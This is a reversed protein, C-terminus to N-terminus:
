WHEKRRKMILYILLPVGIASTVIGVPIVVPSFITRALTDALTLLVMGLLCSIPILFRHDGGVLIRGLHPAALGIFGIPGLMSVIVATIFSALLLGMVRLREVNIGMSKADEDGLMLLNFDWAKRYSLIFIGLVILCSIKLKSWNAKSLSGFMWYALAALEESKGIYQLLSVGASFIYSVAVGFLVITEPTVKQSKSLFYIALTSLLTFCFANAGILYDYPVYFPLLDTVGKKLIIALAAGFSAASSIGLTYPSALPNRLITQMMLGALALGSGCVAAMFVRPVRLQWLIQHSLEMDERSRGIGSILARWSEAINYSAGGVSLGSLCLFVLLGLLLVIIFVKHRLHEQWTHRLADRASVGAGPESM